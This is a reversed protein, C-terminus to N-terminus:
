GHQREEHDLRPAPRTGARRLLLREALTWATTTLLYLGAALPVFAAVIMTGFPVARGLAAAIRSPNDPAGPRGHRAQGAAARAARVSGLGVLALLLFLVGFVLGHLGWPASLWHSGLPVGALHHRLLLNPGGSVTASLFLRYVVSFFPLQLLGPLCGAYLSAGEAAQLGALERQLREPQRGHRRYLEQAQPLLRARAQEGRLARYSLPLLLLRVAMTFVVIAAAGALGGPLPALLSVLASVIHYAADVPLAFLASM